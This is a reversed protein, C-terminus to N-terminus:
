LESAITPNSQRVQAPLDRVKGIFEWNCGMGTSLADDWSKYATLIVGMYLSYAM